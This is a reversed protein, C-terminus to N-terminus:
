LTSKGKGGKTLRACIEEISFAKDANSELFGLLEARKETNYTMKGGFILTIRLDQIYYLMKQLIDIMKRFNVYFLSSFNM